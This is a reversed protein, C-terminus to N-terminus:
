RRSKSLAAALAELLKVGVYALGVGAAIPAAAKIFKGPATDAFFHEALRGREPNGQDLHNIEFTGDDRVFLHASFRERNERYQAVIHDYFPWEMNARAFVRGDETQVTDPFGEYPWEGREPPNVPVEGLYDFGSM